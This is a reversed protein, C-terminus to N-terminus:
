QDAKWVIKYHTIAEAHFDVCDDCVGLLQNVHGVLVPKDDLRTKLLMGAKLEVDPTYPTWNM